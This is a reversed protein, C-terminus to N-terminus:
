RFLCAIQTDKENLSIRAFHFHYKGKALSIAFSHKLLKEASLQQEYVPPALVFDTMAIIVIFENITMFRM